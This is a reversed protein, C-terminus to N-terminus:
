SFSGRPPYLALHAVHMKSGEAVNMLCYKPILNGLILYWPGVRRAENIAGRERARLRVSLQVLARGSQPIGRRHLLHQPRCVEVELGVGHVHVLQTVIQGDRGRRGFLSVQTGLLLNILYWILLRVM